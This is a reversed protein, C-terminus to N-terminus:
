TNKVMIYLSRSHYSMGDLRGPCGVCARLFIHRTL